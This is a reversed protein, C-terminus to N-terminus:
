RGEQEIRIRRMAAIALAADRALRRYAVHLNQHTGPRMVDAAEISRQVIASAFHAIPREADSAASHGHKGEQEDLAALVAELDPAAATM